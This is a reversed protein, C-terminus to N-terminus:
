GTGNQGTPAAPPYSSARPKRNYAPRDATATTTCVSLMSADHGSTPCRVVVTTTHNMGHLTPLPIKRPQIGWARTWIAPSRAVMARILPAHMPMGLCVPSPRNARQTCPTCGFPRKSRGWPHFSCHLNVVIITSTVSDEGNGATANTCAQGGGSKTQMDTQMDHLSHRGVSTKASKLISITGGNARTKM